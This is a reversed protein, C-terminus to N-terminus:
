HRVDTPPYGPNTGCMAYYCLMSDYRVDCLLIAYSMTMASQARYQLDRLARAPSTLVTRSLLPSSRAPPM